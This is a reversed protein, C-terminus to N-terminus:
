GGLLLAIAVMVAGVSVLLLGIRWPNVGTYRGWAVGAAFLMAFSIVNSAGIALRPADRLLLLPVLSPLVALLAVLFSGLAGSLDARSFSVPQAESARLHAVIDDYLAARQTAGTIPELIHDFEAAVLARQETPTSAQALMHLLRHREGRELVAILAYMVGDIMGWAATAGLAALLLESVQAAGFATGPYEHFLVIRYAVTFILVILISFIAEALLDIPDLFQTSLNGLFTAPTGHAARRRNHMRNMM